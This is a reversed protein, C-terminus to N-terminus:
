NSRFVLLATRNRKVNNLATLQVLVHVDSACQLVGYSQWVVSWALPDCIGPAPVWMCSCKRSLPGINILWRCPGQRRDCNWGRPNQPPEWIKPFKKPGQVLRKALPKEVQPPGPEIEVCDIYSLIIWCSHNSRDEGTFPWEELHEVNIRSDDRTLYCWPSFTEGSCSFFFLILPNM